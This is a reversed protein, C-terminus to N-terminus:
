ERIRLSHKEVKYDGLFLADLPLDLFTGLADDPTEVIPEGGRNFSTNLLIPHDTHREFDRLLKHFRPNDQRDVTQVRASGDVHTVAHLLRRHEPRVRRVMLMYPSPQDTEFYRSVDELIVAPALPRFSERGKVNKNVTERMETNLANALISRNGLARPGIESGGQFWGIVRNRSLLWAAEDCVDDCRSYAVPFRNLCEVLEHDTYTRGTYALGNRVPRQRGEQDFYVCLAAGLATANDGAAPYVFVREFSTKETIKGNAVSNLACGGGYCLDRLGTRRHAEQLITFVAEEFIHQAATAINARIRFTNKAANITDPLWDCIGSYPDFDFLGDRMGVFDQMPALLSLDGYPALGMTKGEGYGGFGIFESVMNYFAGLSNATLYRWYCTSIRRRGSQKLTLELRDERGAGISVTELDQTHGDTEVRNGAGDIVVLAAHSFPSCFYAAAAHTQHHSFTIPESPLHDLACKEIHRNTAISDIQNSTLQAAELCYDFSPKTPQSHWPGRGYRIRNLREDEIAVTLTGDQLLACAFDHDSGGIGLINM